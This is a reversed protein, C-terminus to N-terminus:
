PRGSGISKEVTRSIQDEWEAAQAADRSELAVQRGEALWSSLVAPPIGDIAFLKRYLAISEGPRGHAALFAASERLVGWDGCSLAGVDVAQTLLWAAGDGNGSAQLRPALALALALSPVTKMAAQGLDIADGRKGAADLLNM